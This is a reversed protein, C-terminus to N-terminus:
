QSATLPEQTNWKEEDGMMWGENGTTKIGWDQASELVNAMITISLKVETMKIIKPLSRKTDNEGDDL